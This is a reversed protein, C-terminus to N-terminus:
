FHGGGKVRELRQKLLGLDNMNPEDRKVVRRTSSLNRPQYRQQITKPSTRVTKLTNILFCLLFIIIVELEEQLINVDRNIRSVTAACSEIERVTDVAEQLSEDKEQLIRQLEYNEKSKEMSEKELLHSQQTLRSLEM